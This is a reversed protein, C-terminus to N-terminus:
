SELNKLMSEIMQPIIKKRQKMAEIFAEEDGQYMISVLMPKAAFPFICMALMNMMLQRPDVSLRSLRDDGALKQMAQAPHIGLEGMMQPVRGPNSTLEALVFVPIQPHDIMTDIIIEAMQPFYESLSDTTQMLEALRPVFQSMANRFVADFLKDKTRYYYNLSTRTIGAEDAIEQMSAGQKGKSYFIKEAAELIRLEAQNHLEM